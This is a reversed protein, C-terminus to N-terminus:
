EDSATAFREARTEAATTWFVPTDCIEPVLRGDLFMTPTGTIELRRALAVDAAVIAHVEAGNMDRQLADPDLGVEAALERYADDDLRGRRAFLLDHMRRLTEEGGLRRAAEAARAARCAEEHADVTVAPNCESCLPYHRIRIDIRDEFVEAIRRQRATADCFCAPCQFDTFVVLESRAPRAQESPRLPFEVRPQRQYRELVFAPDRQLSTVLRQYPRLRAVHARRALRDHRYVWLGGIVAVVLALVTVVQRTTVTLRAIREPRLATPDVAEEPERWMETGHVLRWIAGVLTFNVLHVIACWLCWPALGTLMLGLFGLSALIAANGVHLPLRHWPRGFRRPGGILVHWIGMFTFYGLAIFAVPMNVFRADIGERSPILMPVRVQSWRSEMAGSCSVTATGTARCMKALLGDAAPDAHMIVLQGSIWAGVVSLLVIGALVLGPHRLRPTM